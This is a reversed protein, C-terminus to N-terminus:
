PESQNGIKKKLQFLTGDNELNEWVIKAKILAARSKINVIGRGKSVIEAPNFFTGDDKINLVFENEPSVDIEMEVFGADSHRKINTLVEQVIRYIQIQANPPFNLKEEANEAASFRYNEITDSLLFELAAVLGVNELVSPSLDECIRRIETSVSEIESRFEGTESPLKDSMMMLNRLDALTQDHLDRAIRKREREAESALDFRAAALQRNKQSIQRREIIVLILAVLAIALLIGLATATWPFPSRAVSFRIMLPESALLDKNFARAEITYEGSSLDEPSFQSDGSLRKELIEGKANKLLFAYQFQEPFTRSSLGGVEVLISKQPFALKITEDLEQAQYLRQGLVRMPIIKPQIASPAYSVVGRNTGILLRNDVPLISFIQESPLGQEVSLNTSIWGFNEDFKAHFLGGGLTAAWLDAGLIVADRVVQDAILSQLEGNQFRFLGRESAFWLDNESGKAIKWIAANRLVELAKEQRTENGEVVFVGDRATGVWLREGAAFLATPADNTFIRAGNEIEVVGLGYIAAYTKNQFNVLARTDGELVEEGEITLVGDATAFLPQNAPNEIIDYVVKASFDESELWNGESFSFLGRNTGAFIQGGSAKFLKRVFNSNGNESLTQNFPSSRDFRCAGRNTGVWVVGERDVFVSYIRNSRLGGATNGFTFHEAQREGQFYFLGSTETGVWVGSNRDPEVALVNGLGTGLRFFRSIDQLLFFGSGGLDTDAGLWVNGNADQALANIFFPRPRSFTESVQDNEVLLISRSRTGAILNGGIEAFGTIKVPNGSGDRLPERPIREVNFSNENEGQAAAYIEGRNTALWIKDSIFISTVGSNKTEEILRFREGDFFFAGNETGIWLRGNPSIELAFVRNTEGNGLGVTQVRRGDFRALGNDTGFWLVGDPTQAIARVNDSPLGNFLTVAGWQHFNQPSPIEQSKVATLFLSLVLFKVAFFCSTVRIKKFNSIQFKFNSIKRKFRHRDTNM